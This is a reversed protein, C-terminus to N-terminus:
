KVINMTVPYKYMAGENAKMGALVGFIVEVVMAAFPVVFFIAGVIVLSGCIGLVYGVVAIISWTLQFNLSTVAHARVTPSQNGKALM